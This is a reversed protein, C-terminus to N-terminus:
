LTQSNNYFKWDRDNYDRLLEIKKPIHHEAVLFVRLCRTNKNVVVPRMNAHGKSHNIRM